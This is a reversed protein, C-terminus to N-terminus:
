AIARYISSVTISSSSFVLEWNVSFNKIFDSCTNTILMHIFFLINNNRCCESVGFSIIRIEVNKIM